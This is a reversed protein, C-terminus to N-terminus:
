GKQEAYSVFYTTFGLPPVSVEFSLWFNPTNGISRGLYIKVHTNRLHISANAIPLLQAVIEIGESNKVVVHENAVQM